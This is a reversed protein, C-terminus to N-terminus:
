HIATIMSSCLYELGIDSRKEKQSAEYGAEWVQTEKSEELLVIFVGILGLAVDDMSWPRRGRSYFGNLWPYFFGIGDSIIYGSLAGLMLPELSEKNNGGYCRNYHALM